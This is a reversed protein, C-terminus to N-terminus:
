YTKIHTYICINIYTKLIYSNNTDMKDTSLWKSVLLKTKKLAAKLKQPM